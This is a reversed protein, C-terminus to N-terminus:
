DGKKVIVGIEELCLSDGKFDFALRMGQGKGNRAKLIHMTRNHQLTDTQGKKMVNSYKGAHFELWIVTQPFRSFASSGALFSIDPRPKSTKTPHTVLVVSCKYDSCVGKVIRVFSEEAKFSHGEGRSSITIPDICIIREGAEAKGQVWAGLEELTPLQRGPCVIRAAIADIYERNDQFLEKIKEPNMKAWEDDTLESYETKQALIRLLYYEVFDELEYIVCRVGELHWYQLCQLLAFTKSAGPTGCLITVSGPTLAKCLYGLMPWPLKESRFKGDIMDDIQRGLHHRPTQIM